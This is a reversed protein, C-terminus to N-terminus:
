QANSIEEALRKQQVQESVRFHQKEKAFTLMTKNTRVNVTEDTNDVIFKQETEKKVALRAIELNTNLNTHLDAQAKNNEVILTNFDAVKAQSTVTMLLAALIIM